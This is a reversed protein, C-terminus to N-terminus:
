GEFSGRTGDLGGVAELLSSFLSSAAELSHEWMHKCRSVLQISIQALFCEKIIKGPHERSKHGNSKM